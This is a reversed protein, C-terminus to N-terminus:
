PLNRKYDAYDSRQKQAECNETHTFGHICRRAGMLKLLDPRGDGAVILQKPYAKDEQKLLYAVPKDDAAYASM